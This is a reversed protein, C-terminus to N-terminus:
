APQARRGPANAPHDSSTIYPMIGLSFVSVYSLAGGSFLNLLAMAVAPSPIVPPRSSLGSMAQFPHRACSRACRHPVAVLMAITFM